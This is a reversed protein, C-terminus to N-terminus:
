QMKIMSIQIYIYVYWKMYLFFYRILSFVGNFIDYFCDSDDVIIFYCVDQIIVNMRLM